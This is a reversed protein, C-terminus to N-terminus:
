GVFEFKELGCKELGCKELGCKELGCKELGCKEDAKETHESIDSRQM